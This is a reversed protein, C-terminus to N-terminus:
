RDAVGVTPGRGCTRGLHVLTGGHLPVTLDAVLEQRWLLHYLVPLVAIPDGALDAGVMLSMPETFAARLATATDLLHHRPPRYGALWRLNAVTVPDPTGVLRYDWGVLECAQRTAEFAAADRPKIRELPRCDVVVAGGDLRRAVYDPVHSHSRKDDDQWHLWFPQSAIGVITPDVDLVMLHDRELWSEYGVHRGTTASWWLGPFYRQRKYSPFTRVPRTQEFRVLMADALTVRTQTGDPGVYGVEFDATPPAGGGAVARLM